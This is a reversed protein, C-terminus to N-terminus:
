ARAEVKDDTGAVGGRRCGENGGDRDPEGAGSTMSVRM